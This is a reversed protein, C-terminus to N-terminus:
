VCYERNVLVQHKIPTEKTHKIHRATSASGRKGETGDAAIAVKAKQPSSGTNNTFGDLSAKPKLQTVGPMQWFHLLVFSCFFMPCPMLHWSCGHQPSPVQLQSPGLCAPNSPISGCFHKLSSICLTPLTQTSRSLSHVQHWPRAPPRMDVTLLNTALISMTRTGMPPWTNISTPQAPFPLWCSRQEQLFRVLISRRGACVRLSTFM